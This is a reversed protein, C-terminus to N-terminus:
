LDSAPSLVEEKPRPPLIEAPDVGAPADDVHLGRMEAHLEDPAPTASGSSAHHLAALAGPSAGTLNMSIIENLKRLRAMEAEMEKLRSGLQSTSGELQQIYTTARDLLAVKSGKQANSPLVERLRTYGDRLEDRRKQEAEIRQRRTQEKRSMTFNELAGRGLPLPLDDDSGDDISRRRGAGSSSSGAPSPTPRAMPNYRLPHAGRLSAPSAPGSSHSHDSAYPADLPPPREFSSDGGGHEGPGGGNYGMTLELGMQSPVIPVPTHPVLYSFNTPQPITYQQEPDDPPYFQHYTGPQQEQQDM